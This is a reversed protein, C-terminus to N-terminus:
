AVEKLKSSACYAILGALLIEDRSRSSFSLVNSKGISSLFYGPEM